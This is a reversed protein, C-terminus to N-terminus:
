QEPIEKAARFVTILYCIGGIVISFLVQSWYMLSAATLSMGAEKRYLEV